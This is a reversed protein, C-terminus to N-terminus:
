IMSLYKKKLFFVSKISISKSLIHLSLNFMISIQACISHGCWTFTTSEHARAMCVVLLPLLDIKAM